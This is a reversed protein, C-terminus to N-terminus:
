GCRAMADSHYYRVDDTAQAYTLSPLWLAFGLILLRRRRIM